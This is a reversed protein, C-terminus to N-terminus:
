PVVQGIVRSNWWFACAFLVSGASMTGFGFAGLPTLRLPAAEAAGAGAGETDTPVGAGAGPEAGAAAGAGETSAGGVVAGM